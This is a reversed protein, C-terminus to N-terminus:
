AMDMQADDETQDVLRRKVSRNFGYSDGRQYCARKQVTFYVSNRLTIADHPRGVLWQSVLGRACERDEVPISAVDFMIRERQVTERSAADDHLEICEAVVNWTRTTTNWIARNEWVSFDGSMAIADDTSWGLQQICQMIDYLPVSSVGFRYTDFFEQRTSNTIQLCREKEFAETDCCPSNFLRDLESASNAMNRHTHICYNTDRQTSNCYLIGLRLFHGYQANQM